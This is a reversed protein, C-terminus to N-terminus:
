FDVKWMTGSFVGHGYSPGKLKKVEEGTWFEFMYGKPIFPYYKEGTYSLGWGCGEETQTWLDAPISGFTQEAQDANRPCVPIPLSDYESSDIMVTQFPSETGVKDKLDVVLVILFLLLLPVLIIYFVVFALKMSNKKKSESNFQLM